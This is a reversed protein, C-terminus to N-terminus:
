RQAWSEYSRARRESICAAIWEFLKVFEDSQRRMDELHQWDLSDRPGATSLAVEEIEPEIEKEFDSAKMRRIQDASPLKELVDARLGLTKIGVGYSNGLRQLEGVIVQDEVPAAVYLTAFHAWKSNSVCQFFAQRLDALTIEVKLEICELRFPQDGLHRRVELLTQDLRGDDSVLEREWHVAVIDPFKWANTGAAQKKGRTHEISKAYCRLSSLYRLSIARFKEERQLDRGAAADTALPAVVDKAATTSPAATPRLFYGHKGPRKAIPSSPDAAMTSFSQLVSNDSFEGKLRKDVKELLAPGNLAKDAERPLVEPLIDLLQERLTKAV